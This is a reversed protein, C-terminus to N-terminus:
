CTMSNRQAAGLAQAAIILREGNLGSMLQKWAGGVEGVVAGDPLEVDTFYLDNVEHGCMTAIPSITLGPSDAPVEFM